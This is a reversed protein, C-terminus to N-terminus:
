LDAASELGHQLQPFALRMTLVHAVDGCRLDLFVVVFNRSEEVLLTKNRIAAHMEPALTILNVIRSVQSQNVDEAM